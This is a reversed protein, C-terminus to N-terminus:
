PAPEQDLVGPDRRLERRAMAEWLFPFGNADPLAIAAVQAETLPTGGGALEVEWARRARWELTVARLHAQRLDRGVVLAGHNGLLAWKAQGLARVAAQTHDEDEFTGQYEDYLPLPGDVYAGTQDYVPPVRRMSAWLGSYGPHNHIVVHVDPRAQHLQMHLGIAPSVNWDGDIIQGNQDLTVIDGATIEDWALEWPNTLVRDNDLRWTIHGAIHDDWGERLLMRCMLAVQAEPSLEPLLPRRGPRPAFQKLIDPNLGPITQM